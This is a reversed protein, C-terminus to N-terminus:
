VSRVLTVFTYAPKGERASHEERASEHWEPGIDPFHTDGQPAADIRTLEITDALPLFQAYVQGGGVVCVEPVDGALALAAQVDCALEAGQAQWAADRTMVIHRRGPLLGPLSEFTKRGMIMPKGMTLAKFHRLDEPLHWPMDGDAGIVGNAAVAVVLVIRTM